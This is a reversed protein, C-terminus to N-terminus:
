SEERGSEAPVTMVQLFLGLRRIAESFDDYDVPKAIYASCGLQYCRAMERPDDTTTLIIIPMKRTQVDSKLQRLAEVGDLVPMNIDLLVVYRQPWLRERYVGASRIYDLVAQGDKLHVVNNRIGARKLNRRILVAHGEDDEAMLITVSQTLM